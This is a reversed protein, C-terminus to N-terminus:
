AQLDWSTVKDEKSGLVIQRVECFSLLIVIEIEVMSVNIFM